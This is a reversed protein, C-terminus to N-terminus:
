CQLRRWAVCVVSSVWSWAVCVVHSVWTWAVCVISSVWVWASCLWSCPWWTCCRSFGDDREQACRSYGQDEERDCRQFSDDRTEICEFQGLWCQFNERIRQSCVACFPQGLNRMRCDFQPRFAGCHYYHAGEFLGVTTAAVPNAQPDCITCDANRTTPLATGPDVFNRWKLTQRNTDRTINPESPEFIGYDNKDDGAAGCGVYSSYEDALGFASHGMEHLAIEVATPDLSCVAVNGGSGGYTMSNVFVV